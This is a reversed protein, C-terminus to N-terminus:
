RTIGNAILRAKFKRKLNGGIQSVRQRSIGHRNGVLTGSEGNIVYESFIDNDRANLSNSFDGIIERVQMVNEKRALAAEPTPVKGPIVSELTGSNGDEGIPMNISTAYKGMHAMAKEIEGIAFGFHRAIEPVQPERGNKATFERRYKPLSAYLTKAVRSGARITGFNKRVNEQCKAIMWKRAYTSFAMKSGVKYKNAAILIGEIASQTLDENDIGNRNHMNAIQKAMRVNSNVLSELAKRDKSDQWERVKDIQADRSLIVVTALMTILNAM